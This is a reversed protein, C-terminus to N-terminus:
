GKKTKFIIYDIDKNNIPHLRFGGKERTKDYYGVIQIHDKGIAYLEGTVIRVKGRQTVMGDPDPGGTGALTDPKDPHLYVSCALGLHSKEIKDTSIKDGSELVHYPAYNEAIVTMTMLLILSM